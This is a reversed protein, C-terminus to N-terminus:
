IEEIKETDVERGRRSLADAFKNNVGKIHRFEFRTNPFFEKLRCLLQNYSDSHAIGSNGAWVVPEHDTYILVKNHTQTVFRGVAKWAGLPESVVSREVHNQDREEQSWPAGYYQTCGNTSSVCGWGKECADVTLTIDPEVDAVSSSMETPRNDILIKLWSSLEERIQLPVEVQENWQNDTKSMIGRYWKLLEYLFCLDLNLVDAGYYILGFIGAVQRNTLRQQPILNDRVFILKEVTKEALARTKKVYDYREGLFEDQQKPTALENDVKAGVHRCRELFQKGAQIVGERDGVFRINDIYVDVSVGEPLNFDALALSISQAVECAPRFGMPLTALCRKGDFAFYRSILKHLPLQDYWGIFDYQLSWEGKLGNCRVERKLPIRSPNLHKKYICKNIDPWFIPRRRRKKHEVVFFSKVSCRPRIRILKKSRGLVYVDAKWLRTKYKKFRPLDKSFQAYHEPDCVWSLAKMLMAKNIEKMALEKLKEYHVTAINEEKGHHLRFSKVEEEDYTKLDAM